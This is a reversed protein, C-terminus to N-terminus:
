ASEGWAWELYERIRGGLRRFGLYSNMERIAEEPTRLVGDSRMWVALDVLEQDTYDMISERENPAFPAPTRQAASHQALKVSDRKEAPSDPRTVARGNLAADYAEIVRQTEGKPDTFWATSWIRHFRWGLRELHEQRLRDRDRATPSSHYQAGDAEVALVFEGPRTPHQLAFDIRYGSVGYQCVVDLGAASLSDYIQLEFPNLDIDGTPGPSMERGDSEFFEFLARLFQRGRGTATPDLDASTFSSVLTMRRRARSAAVNLRREGGAQNIPGFAQQLRGNTRRAYGTTILIADREDGQVRELNKVFFPDDQDDSFWSMLEPHEQLKERIAADVRAAHKSGPAIVGLSEEPRTQVHQLVEEVVRNVEATSSDEDSISDVPPVHVFKLCDDTKAGPFTVLSGGYVQKNSVAILREDKSRYHWQLNSEAATGALADILSEYAATEPADEAEADIEGAFFRTPPLQHRDGAVVVQSGRLITPIAYAPEVQSAEDFIVVDFLQRRPLVQSVTLPSMAWCPKAALMVSEAEEILERTSKLRRSKQLENQLTADGTTNEARVEVLHEAVRRAVRPATAEIHSRDLRIFKNARADLADSGRDQLDEDTIRWSELLSSLIVFRVMQEADDASTDTDALENYVDILGLENLRQEHRRLAPVSIAASGGSALHAADKQAQDISGNSLRAMGVVAGLSELTQRVTGYEALAQPWDAPLEPTPSEAAESWQVAARWVSMLEEFTQAKSLASSRIAKVLKQNRRRAFWGQKASNERRWSSTAFAATVTPLDLAFVGSGFADVGRQIEAILAFTAQWSGLDTPEKLRTARLLKRLSLKVDPLQENALSRAVNLANQAADATELNATAWGSEAFSTSFAGREACDRIVDTIEQRLTPDFMPLLPVPIEHDELPTLGALESIVQYASLAWPERVRHLADQANVLSERTNRLASQNESTPVTARAAKLSIALQSRIRGRSSAPDHLDLVLHGLNNTQLRKLVADIAARKEAVFLATKGRAALTAILNAITQSKGTGPPGQVILNKGNLAANIVRNQSSDADLILFEDAPPISDPERLSADSGSGVAAARADADGALALVIDNELALEEAGALDTVIPLSAYSFNGIVYREEVRFDEPRPLMSRLLIWAAELARIPSKSGDISADLKDRDLQLGEKELHRLLVPNFEVPAVEEDLLLRFTSHSADVPSISINQVLLPARVDKGDATKGHVIGAILRATSVGREEQNEVAKKYITRTKRQYDTVPGTPRLKAEERELDAVLVAAGGALKQVFKSDDGPLSITGVKLDNFKLLPNRGDLNVLNDCWGKIAKQILEIREASPAERQSKGQAADGSGTDM